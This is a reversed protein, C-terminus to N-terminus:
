YRLNTILTNIRAIARNIESARYFESEDHQNKAPKGDFVFVTKSLDIGDFCAKIENAIKQRENM